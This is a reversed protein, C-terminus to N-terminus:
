GGSSFRIAASESIARSIPRGTAYRTPSRSTRDPRLFSGLRRIVAQEPQRRCGDRQLGLEAQLEGARSRDVNLGCDDPSNRLANSSTSWSTSATATLAVRRDFPLAVVEPKSQITMWSGSRSSARRRRACARRRASPALSEARLEEGRRELEVAALVGDVPDVAELAAREPREDREAVLLAVVRGLELQLRLEFLLQRDLRVQRAPEREEVRRDSGAM